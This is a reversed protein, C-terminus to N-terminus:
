RSNKLRDIEIKQEQLKIKYASQEQQVQRFDTLRIEALRRTQVDRAYSDAFSQLISLLRDNLELM